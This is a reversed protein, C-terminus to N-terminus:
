ASPKPITDGPLPVIHGLVVVLSAGYAPTRIRPIPRIRFRPPDLRLWGPTCPVGSSEYASRSRAFLPIM